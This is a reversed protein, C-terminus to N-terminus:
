EGRREYKIPVDATGGTSPGAAGAAPKIVLANSVPREDAASINLLDGAVALASSGGGDLNLATYAGEDLMLQALVPLTVGGYGASELEKVVAIILQGDRTLGVATRSRESKAIDDQVKDQENTINIAGNEVLMPAGGIASRAAIAQGASDTIRTELSAPTGDAIGRLPNAEPMIDTAVLLADPALSLTATGGSFYSIAGGALLYYYMGDQPLTELPYKFNYALVKGSVYPTNLASVPVRTGNVLLATEVNFRGIVRQGDQALVLAPRSPYAGSSRLVGDEVLTSLHEGAQGFFGGNVAAIANERRAFSSTARRRTKGDYRDAAAAFIDVPAGPEVKVIYAHFNKGQKASLKEVLEVGQYLQTTRAQEVNAYFRVTYGTDDYSIFPEQRQTLYIGVAINDTGPYLSVRTVVGGAVEALAASREEPVALGAETFTLLYRDPDYRFSDSYKPRTDFSLRVETWYPQQDVAVDLLRSAAAAQGPFAAWAAALLSACLVVVRLGFRMM